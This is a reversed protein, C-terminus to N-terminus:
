KRQVAKSEDPSVESEGIPSGAAIGNAVQTVKVKGQWGQRVGPVFVAWRGVKAVGEGRRNTKQITVHHESGVLLPERLLDIICFPLTVLFMVLVVIGSLRLYDALVTLSMGLYVNVSLLVVETTVASLAFTPFGVSKPDSIVRVLFRSPLLHLALGWLCLFMIVAGIRATGAFLQFVVGAVASLIIITRKSLRSLDYNWFAGWRGM